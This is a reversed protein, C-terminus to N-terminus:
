RIVLKKTTSQGDIEITVFYLGTRYSSVDLTAESTGNLARENVTQLTQGLSNVITVEFNSFNTDSLSITVQDSAPNPSM